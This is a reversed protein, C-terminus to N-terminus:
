VLLYIGTLFLEIGSPVFVGGEKLLNEKAHILTALVGEGFAGSDFIETVIVDFKEIGLEELNINTSHDAIIKINVNNEEFVKGCIDLMIEDEECAYVEKAGAEHAYLALLGTGTGIDLIRENGTKITEKIAKRYASNRHEDNLMAFHWRQVWQNIVNEYNEFVKLKEPSNQYAQKLYNLSELPKELRFYINYLIFCKM